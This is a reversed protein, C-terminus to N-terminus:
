PANGRLAPREEALLTAHRDWVFFELLHGDPDNVYLQTVGDGRSMPGGVIAVGHARLHAMMADLDDVEFALHHALGLRAGEGPEAFGAPATTDRAVILHLEYGSGRFWRGGFTFTRPRPVEELGLVEGYFWSSRELDRVVLASHDLKKLHVM